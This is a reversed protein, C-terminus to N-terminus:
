MFLILGLLHTFISFPLTSSSQGAERLRRITKIRRESQIDIERTIYLLNFEADRRPRARKYKRGERGGRHRECMHCLILMDKGMWTAASIRGLSVNRQCILKSNFIWCLSWHINRSKLISPDSFQLSFKRPCSTPKKNSCFFLLNICWRSLSILILHDHPRM